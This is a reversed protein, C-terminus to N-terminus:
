YIDIGDVVVNLKDTGMSNKNGWLTSGTSIGKDNIEYGNVVTNNVILNYSANYDNGIEIAAKLDTLGGKDNFTCGNVTLVTNAQGYLLLAKGDSNFVCNNFIAKKAGWTWINYVDGSVNFVCNNFVTDDYLTYTGNITCNNFTAKLRAYGTYTTSNTNITIGEFTVTSGDFSYDCGEYSGDNQTAIVSDVGNGIITLTKGQASDPIIYNGSGLQITTAGEKIATDIAADSAAFYVGDVMLMGPSVVRGYVDGVNKQNINGSLTVDLTCNNLSVKGAMTGVAKGAYHGNAEEAFNVLTVAGQADCNTATLSGSLHGVYAGSSKMGNVSANVVDVDTLRVNGECYGVVVAAYGTANADANVTINELVLDSVALTSNPYAYFMSAQGTSNDDDGSVVKVNSITHGNGVVTLKDGRQAVLASFNAGAMDIDAVIEVVAEEASGNNGTLAKGSLALLEQPTGVVYYNAATPDNEAPPNSVDANGQVAEVTYAFSCGKLAYGDAASEPLAIKVSITGNGESPKVEMWNSVKTAGTYKSGGITVELADWLGNDSLMTIVTRYKISVNSKNQVQIDFTFIDGPVINTLTVVNNNLAYTTEPLNAGMTSSLAANKATAIVEVNGTTVAIEVKNQGTFLAFTAGAVVSLCLAIALVSTLVSKKM